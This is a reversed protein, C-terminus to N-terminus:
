KKPPPPPADITPDGPLKSAFQLLDTLFKEQNSAWASLRKNDLEIEDLSSRDWNKPLKFGSLLEFHSRKFQASIEDLDEQLERFPRPDCKTLAIIVQNQLRHLDSLHQVIEPKPKEFFEDGQSRINRLINLEQTAVNILMNKYSM